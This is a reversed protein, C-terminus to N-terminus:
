SLFLKVISGKVLYQAFEMCQVRTNEVIHAFDSQPKSSTKSILICSHLTKKKMGTNGKQNNHSSRVHLHSRHDCRWKM